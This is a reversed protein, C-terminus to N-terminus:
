GCYPIPSIHTTRNVKYISSSTTVQQLHFYRKLQFEAYEFLPRYWCRLITCKWCSLSSIHTRAGIQVFWSTNPFCSYPLFVVLISQFLRRCLTCGIMIFTASNKEIQEVVEITKRPYYRSSNLKSVLLNLTIIVVCSKM